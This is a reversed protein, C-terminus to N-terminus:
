RKLKFDYSLNTYYNRGPEPYGELLSYNADLINNV